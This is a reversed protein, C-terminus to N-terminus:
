FEWRQRHSRLNPIGPHCRPDDPLLIPRGDLKKLSYDGDNEQIGPKVIVKYDDSIGILGRDFARHITPSLAIGNSFTDDHSESFPIIHCADLLQIATATSLHWRTIACTSKYNIPVFRRFAAGRKFIEEGENEKFRMRGGGSQIYYHLLCSYRFTTAMM